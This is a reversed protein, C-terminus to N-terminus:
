SGMISISGNWSTPAGATTWTLRATQTLVATVSQPPGANVPVQGVNLSVTAPPSSVATGTWVNYWAGDAGLRDLKFTVSPSSGGTFSTVTVDIALQLSTTTPFPYTGTTGMTTSTLTFLTTAPRLAAQAQLVTGAALTVQGNPPGAAPGPLSPYSTM